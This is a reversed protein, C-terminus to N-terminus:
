KTKLLKEEGLLANTSGGVGGNIQAASEPNSPKDVKEIQKPKKV